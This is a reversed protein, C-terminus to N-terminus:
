ALTASLPVRTRMPLRFKSSVCREQTQSLFGHTEAMLQRSFPAKEASEAREAWRRGQIRISLHFESFITRPGAQNLLGAIEAMPLESLPAVYVSLREMTQILSRFEVFSFLQEAQNDRGITAVTRRESSPARKVWPRVTIQMRSPFLGCLKHQAASRFRGAIEAMPLGSLQAMNALSPAPTRM